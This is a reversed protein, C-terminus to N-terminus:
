IEQDEEEGAPGTRCLSSELEELEEASYYLWPSEKDERVAAVLGETADDLRLSTSVKKGNEAAHKRIKFSLRDLKSKVSSLHDPIVLDLKCDKKLNSAYSVVVDREHSDRFSVHIKKTDDQKKRHPPLNRPHVRRIDSLQLDAVINEPVDMMNLLYDKVNPLFPQVPSLLISRRAKIFDETFKPSTKQIPRHSPGANKHAGKELNGLRVEMEKQHTAMEKQAGEVGTLRNKIGALDDKVM